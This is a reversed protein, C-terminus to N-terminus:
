QGEEHAEEMKIIKEGELQEVIQQISTDCITLEPAIEYLPVMVFARQKMRPHPVTLEVDTSSFDQYLLIDIDIIRPGFRITKVRKMEQEIGQCYELLEYPELDTRGKLVVNLFWDQEVYGVPETQYFSSIADIKVKEGLRHIAEKLNNRTDGMNSGLSLFVQKM